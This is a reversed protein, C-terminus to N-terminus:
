KWALGETELAVFVWIDLRVRYYMVVIRVSPSPFFGEPVELAIKCDSRDVVLAFRPNFGVENM